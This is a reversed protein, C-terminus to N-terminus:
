AEGRIQRDRAEREEAVVEDPDIDSEGPSEFVIWGSAHRGAPVEEVRPRLVIGDPSEIIELEHGGKGLGYRTRVALPIVVRGAHDM